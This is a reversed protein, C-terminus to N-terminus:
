HANMTRIKQIRALYNDHKVRKLYDLPTTNIQKKFDRLFHSQDSFGLDFALESFKVNEGHNISHVASQCRMIRCYAKPTMGMDARFQREITRTTYGTLSELESIRTNGKSQAIYQLVQSTLSSSKRIVKDSFYEEVLAVQRTFCESTVTSEFMQNSDSILEAIAYSKGIMDEASADMCDPMLGSAFRVGFYRHHRILEIEAALLPTGFIRASPRTSDCDFLIDLCGDPIAVTAEKSDLAEFGYFHSIAPNASESLSFEDASRMVLWPQKSRIGTLANVLSPPQSM